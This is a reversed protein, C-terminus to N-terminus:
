LAITENASRIKECLTIDMERPALLRYCTDRDIGYFQMQISVLSTPIKLACNSTNSSISIWLVYIGLFVLIGIPVIAYISKKRYSREKRM